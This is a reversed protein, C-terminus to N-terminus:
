RVGYRDHRLLGVLGDGGNGGFGQALRGAIDRGGRRLLAICPTDVIDGRQECQREVVQQEAGLLHMALVEIGVGHLKGRQQRDLGAAALLVAAVARLAGVV